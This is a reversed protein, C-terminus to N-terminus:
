SGRWRSRRCCTRARALDELHGPAAAVDAEEAGTSLGEPDRVAGQGAARGHVDAGGRKAAVEADDSSLESQLAAGEGAAGRVHAATEVDIRQRLVARDGGRGEGAILAVAGPSPEVGIGQPRDQRDLRAGDGAVGGPKRAGAVGPNAPPQVDALPVQPDDVARDRAVVRASETGTDGVGSAPVGGQDQAQRRNRAVRGAPGAAANQVTAERRGGHDLEIMRDHGVSGRLVQGGGEWYGRERDGGVVAQDFGRPAREQHSGVVDGSGVREEARERALPPGVRM